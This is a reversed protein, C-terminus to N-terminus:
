RLEPDAPDSEGIMKEIEASLMTSPLDRSRSEGLLRLPPSTKQSAQVLVGAPPV